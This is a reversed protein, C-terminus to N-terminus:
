TCVKPREFNKWTHDCIWNKPSRQVLSPTCTGTARPLRGARNAVLFPSVTPLRTCVGEPNLKGDEVGGNVTYGQTEPVDIVGDIIAHAVHVGQPGFERALSQGLARRAFM